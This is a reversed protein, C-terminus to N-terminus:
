AERCSINLANEGSILFTQLHLQCLTVLRRRHFGCASSYKLFGSLYWFILPCFIHVPLSFGFSLYVPKLLNLESLLWLFAFLFLSSVHCRGGTFSSLNKLCCEFSALAGEWGFSPPVVSPVNRSLWRAVTDLVKSGSIESRSFCSKFFCISSFTKIGFREGRENHFSLIM